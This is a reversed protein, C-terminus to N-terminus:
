LTVAAETEGAPAPAAAVAAVGVTASPPLPTAAATPLGIGHALGAAPGAADREAGPAPRERDHTSQGLLM